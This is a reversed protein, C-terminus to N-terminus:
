KSVLQFVVKQDPCQITSEKKISHWTFSNTSCEQVWNNYCPKWNNGNLLLLM